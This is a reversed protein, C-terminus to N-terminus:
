MQDIINDSILVRYRGRPETHFFSYFSATAEVRPRPLNLGDAVGTIVEPSLWETHDQVDILIQVLRDAARGHRDLIAGIAAQATSDLM